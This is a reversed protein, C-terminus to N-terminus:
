NSCVTKFVSLCVLINQSIETLALKESNTFVSDKLLFSTTEKSFSFKETEPYDLNYPNQRQLFYFAILNKELYFM